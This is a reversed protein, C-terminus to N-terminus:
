SFLNNLEYDVQSIVYAFDEVREVFILSQECWHNVVGAYNSIWTEYHENLNKLISAFLTNLIAAANEIQKVLKPIDAQLYILLDPPKVFEIM